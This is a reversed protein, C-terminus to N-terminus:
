TSPSYSILDVATKASVKDISLQLECYETQIDLPTPDDNCSCGAIVGSFIISVKCCITAATEESELVIVSFPEDSVMSSLTLGQQLPLDGSDLEELEDKLISDFIHSNWANLAKPLHIM